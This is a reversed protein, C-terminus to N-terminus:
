DRLQQEWGNKDCGLSGPDRSYTLFVRKYDGSDSGSTAVGRCHLLLKLELGDAM